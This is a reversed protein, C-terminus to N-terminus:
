MSIMDKNIKIAIQPPSKKLLVDCLSVVKLFFQIVITCQVLQVLKSNQKTWCSMCYHLNKFSGFTWVPLKNLSSIFQEKVCLRNCNIEELAFWSQSHQIKWSFPKWNISTCQLISPQIKGGSLFSSLLCQQPYQFGIRGEFILFKIM